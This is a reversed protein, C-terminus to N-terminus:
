ASHFTNNEANQETTTRITEMQQLPFNRQHSTLVVSM